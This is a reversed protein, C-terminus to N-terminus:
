DRKTWALLSHEPAFVVNKPKMPVVTTLTQEDERNIMFAYGLQDGGFEIRVPIAAVFGKAVDKRQVKVKVEFKGDAAPAVTYQWRYSPLDAGYIWSDFFWNWDGPANRELVRRLDATTARKGSFERVYDRLTNVFIDDSNTRYRLMM